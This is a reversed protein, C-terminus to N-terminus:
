MNSRLNQCSMVHSCLQCLLSVHENVLVRSLRPFDSIGPGFKELTCTLSRVCNETASICDELYNLHDSPPAASPWVSQRSM